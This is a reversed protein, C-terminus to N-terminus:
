LIRDGLAQRIWHCVTRYHESALPFAEKYVEEIEEKEAKTHAPLKSSKVMVKVMKNRNYWKKGGFEFYSTVHITLGLTLGMVNRNDLLIYDSILGKVIQFSGLRDSDWRELLLAYLEALSISKRLKVHSGRLLDAWEKMQDIYQVGDELAM